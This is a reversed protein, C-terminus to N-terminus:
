TKDIVTFTISLIFFVAKEGNYMSKRSLYAFFAYFANTDM